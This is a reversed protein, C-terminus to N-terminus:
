IYFRSTPGSHHFSVFADFTRSQKANGGTNQEKIMFSSCDDNKALCLLLPASDGEVECGLDRDVDGHVFTDQHVQKREVNFEERFSKQEPTVLVNVETSVKSPLTSEFKDLQICNEADELGSNQNGVMMKMNTFETNSISPDFTIAETMRKEEKLEPQEIKFVSYGQVETILTEDNIKPDTRGNDREMEGTDSESYDCLANTDDEKLECDYKRETVHDNILTTEDLLLSEDLSQKSNSASVSQVSSAFNGEDGTETSFSYHVSDVSSIRCAKQKPQEVETLQRSLIQFLKPDNRNMKYRNFNPAHTMLYDLWPATPIVEPQIMVFFLHPISLMRVEEECWGSQIFSKSVIFIASNSNEVAKVINAIISKGVLFDRQAIQLKFQPELAPVLTRGVYRLDRHECVVFADFTKTRTLTTTELQRYQKEKLRCYCSGGTIILLVLFAISVFVEMFNNFGDSVCKPERSWLGNLLCRRTADGKIMYRDDICMYEVESNALYHGHHTFNEIFSNKAKSPSECTVPRYICPITGNMVPLYQCNINFIDSLLIEGCGELFDECM